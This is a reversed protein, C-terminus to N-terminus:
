RRARRLPAGGAVRFAAFFALGVWLAYAPHVIKGFNELFISMQRTDLYGIDLAQTGYLAGLSVKVAHVFIVYKGVMIGAAAFLGGAVREGVGVPGGALGFITRGVAAGVLWALIGIDWHTLVVVGAWGLGGLVAVAAGAALAVPRGAFAGNAPTVVHGAFASNTPDPAVDDNAVIGHRLTEVWSDKELSSDDRLPSSYQGV